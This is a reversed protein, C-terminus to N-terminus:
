CPIFVELTCGQGPTSIININGSYFEVRSRINKLGIGKSKHKSDFGVGDDAVSLILIDDDTKFSIVVKNAKAYKTINNMQEQVIRYFMLEKNKDIDKEIYKEDFLLQVQLNQSNVDEVLGKLAEKLGIDGLSPAVLSHSLKRIEEMAETVYEYSQGLLDVPVNDKAKAMGLYMKVTALIQNINDHLERGLENREKEQTEIITETILKQQKIQQESLERELRKKETIDTMAGIMRYPKGQNDFLIFGRDYVYKYSGDACRFRYEDQWNEIGSEICTQIRRRVQEKDYPHVYEEVWNKGYKLKDESYGFTKIIGNGWRGESAAYDWEWITDQTAKNVFEYRENSEQLKEEAKKSETIDLTIGDIRILKGTADLTPVIRSELWKISSGANRIRFEIIATKGSNLLPYVKDFKYRHEKVVLEYWLNPNGMFDKESYGYVKENGPSVYLMKNNVLDNGWFSDDLNNYINQLRTMTERLKEEAKKRESIDRIISLLKGEGVVKSSLEIDFLSGDKHIARREVLISHGKQLLDFQMPKLMLDNLELFLAVNKQLVEERSYGFMSCLASNVEMINGQLDAVLIGDSAQEVLSHYREESERIKEEALKRQSIDIVVGEILQEGTQPNTQLFCSEILFVPHGDKHKLKIERNILEGTRQLQTIFENRDAKSFYLIGTEQQLLFEITYGLMSAFAANCSLIEGQPTTQYIGALNREVMSRYKQESESLQQEAKKRKTINMVFCTAGEITNEKKIPYLFVEIYKIQGGIEYFREFTVAHGALTEDVKQKWFAKGDPEFAEYHIIGPAPPTGTFFTYEDSFAKNFIILRHEKDMSWIMEASNNMVQKLNTESQILKQKTELREKESRRQKLAAEIAAPLRTLRDKLIYDDAGLKIIGAAFEESTTGTVLIFPICLSRQRAIELAEMANFQPLSYDALILDPQFQDLAQLYADKNMALRFEHHPMEKKLLRRVIEADTTSDELLLIKLPKTM